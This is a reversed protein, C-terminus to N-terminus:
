LVVPDIIGTDSFTFPRPPVLMRAISAITPPPAIVSFPTPAVAQGNDIRLEGFTGAENLRAILFFEGGVRPAIFKVAIARSSGPKLSLRTNLAPLAVDSSDFVNDTSLYVQVPVNGTAPLTGVNGLRLSGTLRAGAKVPRRASVTLSRAVLDVADAIVQSQVVKTSSGSLTAAIERVRGGSVLVLSSQAADFAVEIPRLAFGVFRGSASSTAASPSAVVILGTGNFTPDLAGRATLRIVARGTRRAAVDNASAAVITSLLVKGDSQVLVDQGSTIAFGPVGVVVGTTSGFRVPKGSSSLQV